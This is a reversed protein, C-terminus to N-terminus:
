PTERDIEWRVTVAQHPRLYDFTGIMIADEGDYDWTVCEFASREEGNPYEQIGQCSALRGVGRHRINMTLHRTFRPIVQRWYLADKFQGGRCSYGVAASEGPRIPPTIQCAFKAMTGTSNIRQIGVRHDGEAVASIALREGVYEFWLERAVRSVADPTLNLLHHRYTIVASGEAEIVLEIGLELDVVNGALSALQATEEPSLRLVQSLTALKRHLVHPLDVEEEVPGLAAGHRPDGAPASGRPLERTSHPPAWSAAASDPSQMASVIRALMADESPTGVSDAEPELPVFEFLQEVTWDPFMRELIRCHDPYPLRKVDGSIWRHLQARSPWTGMLQPDVARAAKDYQRCFTTYNQWRKQQVLVRMRTQQAGM